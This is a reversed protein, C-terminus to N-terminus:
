QRGYYKKYSRIYEAAVASTKPNWDNLITGLIRTGDEAFLRVTALANDRTTLGSRVVVIVADVLRGLVRADAIHLAPPTDIVVNDYRSKLLALLEFMRPSYLLNSIHVITSGSTLVDLGPIKTKQVCLDGTGEGLPEKERLIDSLGRTNQLDFVSHLRPRRMDGDIILVRQNIEAWAIALNTATMTKGEGPAPSTFLLVKPRVADRGSFLISTLTSHYAEAMLSMKRQWTVLELAMDQEDEASSLALPVKRKSKSVAHSDANASLIVGLERLNSYYATDGPDRISRDGRERVLALLVGCGLGSVLGLVAHLPLNPKHPAKAPAAPDVVRVNTTRLASAIGAEKVKHLMSDYLQRGTDVERKLINYQISRSAQETLVKSQAAYAAALLAERRKAGDYESKIRALINSRENAFAASLETVQADVRKVRPHAATFAAGLEARQRRLETLRSQIERLSPDDIVESLSEPPTSSATEFRSQRSVREGSARSLEAQLQKLKEEVVNEKEGTFMLGSTNAYQQLKEESSELKVKLDELQGTLWESTQQAANWRVERSQQMFEAAMTNLFLAAVDPNTSETSLQVIRTLGAGRVKLEAAAMALAEDHQTAGSNPVAIGLAKKWASLRDTRYVGATKPQGELKSLVRQKVTNSELIRIQTQLYSDAGYNISTPDVEGLRMFNENINQLELDITAYYVPTQPLAVMFGLLAGVVGISIVSVQHRRLIRWYALLGETGGEDTTPAGTDFERVSGLAAPRMSAPVRPTSGTITIESNSTRDSM